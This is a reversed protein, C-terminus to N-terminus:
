FVPKTFSLSIIYNETVRNENEKGSKLTLIWKNTVMSWSQSNM